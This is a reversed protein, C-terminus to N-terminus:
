TGTMQQAIDSVSLPDAKRTGGPLYTNTRTETNVRKTTDIQTVNQSQCVPCPHKRGVPNGHEDRWTEFVVLEGKCGACNYRDPDLDKQLERTIRENNRKCVCWTVIDSDQGKPFQMRAEHLLNTYETKLQRALTAGPNTPRKALDKEICIELLEDGGGKDAVQRKREPKQHLPTEIEVEVKHRSLGGHQGGHQGGVEGGVQGGHQLDNQIEKVIFPLVLYGQTKGKGGKGVPEILGAQQLETLANRVDRRDIDLDHAIREQSIRAIGQENTHVALSGLVVRQWARGIQKSSRLRETIRPDTQVAYPLYGAINDLSAYRRKNQPTDTPNTHDQVVWPTIENM